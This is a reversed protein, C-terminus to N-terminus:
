QTVGRDLRVAMQAIADVDRRDVVHDGNVDHAGLPPQQHSEIVRALALADRVDVVGDGNVDGPMTSAQAVQRPGGRGHRLTAPVLVALVIAAAAAPGGVRLLLRLRGHGALQARASSTILRDLEAPVRVDPRAYLRSLDAALSDPLAPDDFEDRSAAM